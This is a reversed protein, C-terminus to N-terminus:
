INPLRIKRALGFKKLLVVHQWTLDFEGNLGVRASTPFKHHDNHWGEGFSLIGFIPNNVSRDDTEFSRYGWMHAASNIFWTMHYVSVIRLPIGWLVMSWGGLNYLIIGLPIQLFIFWKDLWRFYPDKRLDPTLRHVNKKAPVEVLMWGIHSWWFGKTSDHPDGDSDTYM